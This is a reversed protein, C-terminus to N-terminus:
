LYTKYTHLSRIPLNLNLYYKYNFEKYTLSRIPIDKYTNVKRNRIKEYKRFNSLCDCFTNLPTCNPPLVFLFYLVQRRWTRAHITYMYLIAHITYMYLVSYM